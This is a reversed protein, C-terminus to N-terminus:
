PPFILKSRLPAPQRIDVAAAVVIIVGFLGLVFCVSMLVSKSRDDEWARFEEAQGSTERRM